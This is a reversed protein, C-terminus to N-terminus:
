RMVKKRRAYVFYAGSSLTLIGALTYLIASSSTSDEDVGTTAITEKNREHTVEINRDANTDTEAKTGPAATGDVKYTTSYATPETADEVKVSYGVPLSLTVSEDDALNITAVGDTFTVSVPDSNQDTGTLTKNAFESSGDKTLTLQIPFKKTSDSYDEEQEDNKKTQNIITVNRNNAVSNITMEKDAYEYGNLTAAEMSLTPTNTADTWTYTCDPDTAQISAQVQYDSPVNEFYFSTENSMTFTPSGDAVYKSYKVREVGTDKPIVLIVDDTALTGDVLSATVSFKAKAANDGAVIMKYSHRTISPKRFAVTTKGDGSTIASDSTNSYLEKSSSTTVTSIPKVGPITVIIKRGTNPDLDGTAPKNYAIYNTSYDFGTVTVTGTTKDIVPSLPSDEPTAWHSDDITDTPSYLTYKATQVTATPNEPLEFASLDIGDKLVANADMKIDKTTEQSDMSIAQIFATVLTDQNSAMRYYKNTSQATRKHRVTDGDTADIYTGSFEGNLWEPAIFDEADPYNSSTVSMYDFITDNAIETYDANNPRWQRRLCYYSSGSRYTEMWGGLYQWNSRPLSSVRVTEGKQNTTWDNNANYTLPNGDSEGFVGISFLSTNNYKKISEAQEVVENAEAYQNSYPYDGPQGDTFFIVVTNRNVKQGINDGSRITYTTKGEGDGRNTLVQYAMNLGNEPQTGGNATLANIANEIKSNVTGVTGNTAAVLGKGYYESVNGDCTTKQWGNTSNGIDRETHTLLETNNYYTFPPDDPSSFGVISIRNDVAGFTDTEDAVAQAFQNLAAKLATLRDTTGPFTYLGSYTPRATGDYTTIVQPQDNNDIQCFEWEQQANNDSALVHEEGKIDRYCLKNYGIKREYMPYNVMMGTDIHIAGWLANVESYTYANKDKYVGRVIGDIASYGREGEEITPGWGFQGLLNKYEIKGYTTNDRDFLITHGTGDVYSFKNYYTGLKGAITLKIPRYVNGDRWYFQNDYNFSQENEGQFWSLDAGVRNLIDGVYWSNTPYYHYLYDKVGYVRYYNYKPDGEEDYVQNGNDDVVPERYYYRQTAIDELYINNQQTPEGSPMDTEAMSGSQDVVVVFDTPIKETITKMDATSYAELTLVYDGNGTPTLYKNLVMGSDTDVVKGPTLNADNGNARGVFSFGVVLTSIAFVLALIAAVFRRNLDTKRAMVLASGGEAGYRALNMEKKVHRKEFALRRKENKDKREYKKM